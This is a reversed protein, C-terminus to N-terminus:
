GARLIQEHKQSVKSFIVYVGPYFEKKKHKNTLAVHPYPSEIYFVAAWPVPTDQYKKKLKASDSRAEVLSTIDASRLLEPSYHQSEPCSVSAITMELRLPNGWVKLESGLSVLQDRAKARTMALKFPSFKLEISEGAKAFKASVWQQKLEIFFKRKGDKSILFYDVYGTSSERGKRVVPPEGVLYGSSIKSLAVTVYTKTQKEQWWYAPHLEFASNKPVGNPVKNFENKLASCIVGLFVLLGEDNTNSILPKM